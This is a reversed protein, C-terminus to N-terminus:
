RSLRRLAARAERTLRAEPEGSVLRELLQKAEPSRIRELVVVARLPRAAEPAPNRGDLGALLEDVRKRVELTLGGKLQIRRLVPEADYGMGQLEKLASERVAFRRGDLDSVLKVIRKDDVKVPALQQGLLKLAGEPAASLDWMARYATASEKSALNAWAQAVEKPGAKKAAARDWGDPTLDAQVVQGDRYGAALRTGDPSIALVAAEGAPLSVKKVERGTQTEWLSVGRGMPAAGFINVGPQNYVHFETGRGTVLFHGDPSFAFAGVDDKRFLERQTARDFVLVRIRTSLSLRNIRIMGGRGNGTGEEVAYGGVGLTEGDASWGVCTGTGSFSLREKGTEVDWVRAQDTGALALGAFQNVRTGASALGKGDPLFALGTVRTAHGGWSRLEKGTGVDWLRITGDYGGSALRKGDPSFAVSAVRQQHGDLSRLEKRTEADWLKVLKDEGATAILKGDPSIAMGYVGGPHAKWDALKRSASDYVRVTGERHTSVVHKGDPTFALATAEAPSNQAYALAPLLLLLPCARLM